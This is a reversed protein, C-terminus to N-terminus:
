SPQLLKIIDYQEENWMICFVIISCPPSLLSSSTSSTQSDKSSLRSPLFTLYNFEHNYRQLYISLCPNRIIRHHIKTVKTPLTNLIDILIAPLYVVKHITTIQQSNISIIFIFFSLLFFLSHYGLLIYIDILSFSISSYTTNYEHTSVIIPTHIYVGHPPM